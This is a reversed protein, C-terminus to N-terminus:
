GYYSATFYIVNGGNEVVATKVLNEWTTQRLLFIHDGKKGYRWEKFKKNNFNRPKKNLNVVADLPKGEENTTYIEDKFNDGGKTVYKITYTIPEFNAKLTITGTKGDGSLTANSVLDEWKTTGVTFCIDSQGYTWKDFYYGTKTPKEMSIAATDSTKNGTSDDPTYITSSVNSGESGTDYNITYEIPEFNAKLTITGTTGNDSLTASSILQEWTTRNAIFDTEKEGDGYTWKDFYYGTKTPKETSIAALNSTQNNGSDSPTYTGSPSTGSFSGDGADYNITYEIPGYDARLIIENNATAGDVLNRWKTRGPIMKRWRGLVNVYMWRNFRYGTKIGNKFNDPIASDLTNEDATYDAQTGAAVVADSEGDKYKIAYKIPNYIAKVLIVKGSEVKTSLKDWTVDKGDILFNKTTYPNNANKGYEWHDFTYYKTSPPYVQPSNDGYPLEQSYFNNESNLFNVSIYDKDANIYKIFYIEKDYQAKFVIKKEGTLKNSEKVDEAAEALSTWDAEGSFAYPKGGLTYGWGSFTKGNIPESPELLPIEDGATLKISNNNTDVFTVDETYGEAAKVKILNKGNEDWYEIIYKQSGWVAHFTITYVGSTESQVANELLNDWDVDEKEEGEETPEVPLEFDSGGLKWGKFERGPNKNLEKEKQSMVTEFNSKGNAETKLGDLTYGTAEGIATAETEESADADKYELKYKNQAYTAELTISAATIDTFDLTYQGDGGENCGNGTLQSFAYGEIEPPTISAGQPYIGIYQTCLNVNKDDCCDIIINKANNNQIAAPDQCCVQKVTGNADITFPSSNDDAKGPLTVTGSNYIANSQNCVIDGSTIQLIGANKIVYVSSDTQCNQINVDTISLNSLNQGTAGEVNIFNNSRSAPGGDIVINKLVVACDKLNLFSLSEDNITISHPTPLEEQEQDPRGAITIKKGAFKSDTFDFFYDDSMAISTETLTIDSGLTINIDRGMAQLDAVALNKMFPIMNSINENTLELEITKQYKVEFNITGDGSVVILMDEELRFEDGSLAIEPSSGYKLASCTYTYINDRDRAPIKVDSGTPYCKIHEADLVKSAGNDEYEFRIQHVGKANLVGDYSTHGVATNNTKFSLSGSSPITPLILTGLNFIADGQGVGDVEDAACNTIEGKVATLTGGNSNFIGGGYECASCSTIKGGNITVEGSNYIAGGCGLSNKCNAVTANEGIELKSEPGSLVNIFSNDRTINSKDGEIWRGDVTINKLVVTCDQLKLFSLSANNIEITKDSGAITIMKGAFKSDAFDFFYASEGMKQDDEAVAINDGLTISIDDIGDIDGFYNNMWNKVDDAGSLTISIQQKEEDGEQACVTNLLMHMPFTALVMMLCILTSVLRKLGGNLNIKLLSQM